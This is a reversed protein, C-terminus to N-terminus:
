ELIMNITQLDSNIQEKIEDFSESITKMYNLNNQFSTVDYYEEMDKAIRLQSIKSAINELYPYIEEIKELPIENFTLSVGPRTSEYPAMGFTYGKNITIDTKM